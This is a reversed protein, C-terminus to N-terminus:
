TAIPIQEELKDPERQQDAFLLSSRPTAEGDLEGGNTMDRWNDASETAVSSQASDPRRSRSEDIVTLVSRLKSESKRSQHGSPTAGPKRSGKKGTPPSPSRPPSGVPSVSPFQVATPSTTASHVEAWETSPAEGFFGGVGPTWSNTRSRSPPMSQHETAPTAALPSACGSPTPAMISLPPLISFIQDEAQPPGSSDFPDPVSALMGEIVPDSRNCHTLILVAFLPFHRRKQQLSTL